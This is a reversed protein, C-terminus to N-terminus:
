GGNGGTMIGAQKSGFILVVVIILFVLLWLPFWGFYTLMAAIVVDVIVIGVFDMRAVAMVMSVGLIVFAALMLGADADTMGMSDAVREAIEDFVSM